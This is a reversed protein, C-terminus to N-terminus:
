QPVLGSADYTEHLLERRQVAEVAQVAAAVIGPDPAAVGAVVAVAVTVPAAHGPLAVATAVQRVPARVPRVARRACRTVVLLGLVAGVEPVPTAVLEQEMPVTMRIGVNPLPAVQRGPQVAQLAGPNTMLFALVAGAEPVPTAMLVQAMPVTMRVDAVPLVEMGSAEAVPAIQLVAPPNAATRPDASRVGQAAQEPKLQAVARQRASAAAPQVLVAVRPDASHVGQAAQEPELQAVARQRASVAASPVLM